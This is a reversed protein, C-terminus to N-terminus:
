RGPHTTRRGPRIRILFTLAVTFLLLLPMAAAERSASCGNGAVGTVRDTSDHDAATEGLQGADAPSDSDAAGDRAASSDHPGSMDNGTSLDSAADPLGSDPEVADATVHEVMEAVDGTTESDFEASEVFEPPGEPDDSTEPLVCYDICNWGPGDTNLGSRNKLADKLYNFSEDVLFILGHEVLIAELEINRAGALESGEQPIIVEDYESWISTYLVDGPTEDCDNVAVLTPNETWGDEGNGICMEEAGCSVFDFCAVKTGHVAIALGVFSEVKNVGCFFRLYYMTNLGGESHAVINIKDFGTASRLEDVWASIERAHDPDCGTTDAFQPAYVYEEPWGDEILRNRFSGWTVWDAAAVPFYGHVMLVPTRTYDPEVAQALNSSMTAALVLLAVPLLKQM